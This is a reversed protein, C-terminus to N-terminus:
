IRPGWLAIISKQIAFVNSKFYKIFYFIEAFMVMSVLKQVTM